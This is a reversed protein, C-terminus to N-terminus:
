TPRIVLPLNFAHNPPDDVVVVVVVVKGVPQVVFGEDIRRFPQFCGGEEEWYPERKVVLRDIKEAPILFRHGDWLAVNGNRGRGVYWRGTELDDLPIQRYIQPNM